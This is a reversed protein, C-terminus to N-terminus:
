CEKPKCNKYAYSIFGDSYSGSSHKNKIMYGAKMFKERLQLGHVEIVCPKEIAIGLLEEEYGEIDMKMFDFKLGLDEISFRKHFCELPFKMANEKLKKFSLDDCEICIVKSAGNELYFRASEGEGAGVDLATLDKIDIPLYSKLWDDREYIYFDRREKSFNWGNSRYSLQM